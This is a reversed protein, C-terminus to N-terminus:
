KRGRLDFSPYGPVIRCRDKVSRRAGEACRKRQVSAVHCRCLTKENLEPELLISCGEYAKHKGLSEGCM